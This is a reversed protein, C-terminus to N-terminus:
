ENMWGKVFDTLSAGEPVMTTLNKIWPHTRYRRLGIVSLVPRHLIRSAYFVEMMTGVMDHDILLAVIGDTDEIKRLDMDVIRQCQPDSLGAGAFSAEFEAQEPRQFPNVVRLGAKELITQYVLGAEQQAHPHALYVSKVM